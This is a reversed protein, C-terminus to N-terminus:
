GIWLTEPAPRRVRPVPGAPLGVIIPAIPMWAKPLGLMQKGEPTKLFAQALGIWCSGLGAAYAALMLNQAALTCDEILWHGQAPGAIVILVPAHYFIQFAPDRLRAQFAGAPSSGPGATLLYAKAAESVQDLLAQDRVVAFRWPQENRASPAQNAADILLHIKSESVPDRTYERVSRRGTIAETINM